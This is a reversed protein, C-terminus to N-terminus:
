SPSLATLGSFHDDHCHTHFIGHISSVSIGLANLTEIINPGTDIIYLKQDHTIISSMCPSSYGM